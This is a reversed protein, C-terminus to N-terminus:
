SIRNDLITPSTTTQLRIDQTALDFVGDLARVYSTRGGLSNSVTVTFGDDRAFATAGSLVALYPGGAYFRTMEALTIQDLRMTRGNDLATSFRLDLRLTAPLNKPTRLVGTIRSFSTYGNLTAANTDIQQSTAANDTVVTGSGDRFAVRFAAAGAGSSMKVWCQFAYNTNAKVVTQDLAQYLGLITAGDGAFVAHKSDTDNPTYGASYAGAAITTGYTGVATWANNTDATWDDLPGDELVNTTDPALAALNLRVGSGKPWRYDLTDVATEGAALFPESGATATGDYSSGVCHVRVVESRAYYTAAGDVPEVVSAVLYGDGANAGGRANAAAVTATLVPRNFAESGVMDRSLKEFLDPVADSKPRATDDRSMAQLVAYCRQGLFSAWERVDQQVNLAKEYLDDAVDAQNSLSSYQALVTDARATVTGGGFSVSENIGGLLKGWRTALFSVSLAM